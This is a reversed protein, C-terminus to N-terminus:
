LSKKETKVIILKNETSFIRSPIEHSRHIMDFIIDIQMRHPDPTTSFYVFKDVFTNKLTSCRPFLKDTLNVLLNRARNWTFLNLRIELRYVLGIPTYKLFFFFKISKLPLSFLKSICNKIEQQWSANFNASGMKVFLSNFGIVWWCILANICCTM